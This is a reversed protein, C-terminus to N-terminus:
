LIRIEGSVVVAFNGFSIRLNKVEMTVGPRAEVQTPIVPQPSNAPVPKSVVPQPQLFPVVRAPRTPTPTTVWVPLAIAIPIAGQQDAKNLVLKDAVIKDNHKKVTFFIRVSFLRDRDLGRLSKWGESQWVSNHVLVDPGYENDGRDIYAFKDGFGISKIQGFYVQPKPEVGRAKAWNGLQEAM